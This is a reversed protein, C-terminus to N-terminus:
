SQNVKVFFIQRYYPPRRDFLFLLPLSLLLVKRFFIDTFPNKTMWGRMLWLRLSLNRNGQEQINIDKGYTKAAAKIWSIVTSRIPLGYTLHEELFPFPNGFKAQYEQYLVRDQLQSQAGCPVAIIVAKTALRPNTGM